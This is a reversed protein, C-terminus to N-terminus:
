LSVYCQTLLMPYSATRPVSIELLLENHICCLQEYNINKTSKQIINMTFTEMFTNLTILHLYFGRPM